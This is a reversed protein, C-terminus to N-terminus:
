PRPPREAAQAAELEAVRARARDREAITVKAAGFADLSGGGLLRRLAEMDRGHRAATEELEAVRAVRSRAWEALVAAAFVPSDAAYSVWEWRVTSENWAWM